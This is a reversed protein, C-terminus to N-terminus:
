AIQLLKRPPKCTKFSAIKGIYTEAAVIGDLHSNYIGGTHPIRVFYGEEGVITYRKYDVKSAM